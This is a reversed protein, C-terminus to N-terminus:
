TGEGKFLPLDANAKFYEQNEEETLRRVVRIERLRDKTPDPDDTPRQYFLAKYRQTAESRQESIYYINIIKRTQNEPSTIPSVAHWTHDGTAFIIARNFRPLVKEIPGDGVAPYPALGPIPDEKGYTSDWLELGGGWSEKWGPDSFYILLNIRREKKSYPHISYDIHMDLCGGNEYEVLGGGHLYPDPELNDIDAIRRMLGVVEPSQLKLITEALMGHKARIHDISNHVHQKQEFPNHYLQPFDELRPWAEKIKRAWEDSFFDDIVVHQFLESKFIKTLSEVKDRWLGLIELSGPDPARLTKEPIQKFGDTNAM